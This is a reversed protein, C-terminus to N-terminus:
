GAGHRPVRQARQTAIVEQLMDGFFDSPWNTINGFLDIELETLSSGDTGNEAFYMAVEHAHLTQEAIRRQIRRVFHESHSEIILQVGNRRTADILVDALGAQVSPHLHIEPQELVITSGKPAYFCLVIVPLIQSVGFGVDTILVEPGGAVRRVKVQYIQSHDSVPAVSFSEILGIEKLWKAVYEELPPKKKGKGLSITLSRDKAALLADVAQEGSRGMDSPQGGAWSYTREPYARLPGLYFIRKLQQELALELDALFGANQYYARVQDPFGYCKTPAPLPWPRGQVRKLSFATPSTFLEYEDKDSKRVFSYESEGLRYKLSQVHQRYGNGKSPTSSIETEFGLSNSSESSNEGKAALINSLKVPNEVQWDLGISLSRTHEHKYILSAFDGLNVLAGPGGLQLLSARDASEATQRLLLLAQM